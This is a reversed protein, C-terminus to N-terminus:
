WLPRSPVQEADGYRDCGDLRTAPRFSIRSANAEADRFSGSCKGTMAGTSTVPMWSLNRVGSGEIGGSKTSAHRTRLRMANHAVRKSYPGIAPVGKRFAGSTAFLMPALVLANKSFARKSM